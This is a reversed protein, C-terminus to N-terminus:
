PLHWPHLPTCQCFQCAVGYIRVYEAAGRLRWVNSQRQFVADTKEMLCRYEDTNFVVMADFYWAQEACRTANQEPSLINPQCLEQRCEPCKNRSASLSEFFKVLCTQHVKHECRPLVVVDNADNSLMEQCISCNDDAMDSVPIPNSVGFYQIFTIMQPLKDYPVAFTSPTASM